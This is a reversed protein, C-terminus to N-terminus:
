SSSHGSRDFLLLSRVSIEALRSFIVTWRLSIETLLQDVLSLLMELSDLLQLPHAFGPELLRRTLSTGLQLTLQLVLVANDSPEFSFVLHLSVVM